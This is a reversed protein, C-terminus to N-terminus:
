SELIPSISFEIKSTVFLAWMYNFLLLYINVEIIPVPLAWPYLNGDKGSSILFIEFGFLTFYSNFLKVRGTNQQMTSFILSSM